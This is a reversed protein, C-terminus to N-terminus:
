RVPVEAGEYVAGPVEVFLRRAVADGLRARVLAHAEALHNLRMHAGHVDSAVLDIRGMDLLKLARHWIREGHEGVLSSANLQALVGDERWRDLLDDYGALYPYREVHALVPRYDRELMRLFIARVGGFDELGFLVEVLAYATGNLRMEPRDFSVGPELVLVEAGLGVEPLRGEEAEATKEVAELLRDYVRRREDLLARLQGGVAPRTHPTCVLARVGQRSAERLQELAERVNRVGDDVGPLLHTHLDVFGDSVM